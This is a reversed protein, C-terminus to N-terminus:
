LHKGCNPCPTEGVRLIYGCHPCTRPQVRGLPAGCAVCSAEGVPNATLCYECVLRRLRESLEFTAGLRNATRELVEWVKDRLQLNEVDQALDDLRGLLRWPNHLAELVTQGLSAVVGLWHQQGVQVAVGDEVQRLAVTLATKGGSAVDRRTAIQVLMEQPNGFHQVQLAVRQFEANLARVFDLVRIEGHFIRQEMTEDSGM